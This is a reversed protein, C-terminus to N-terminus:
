KFFEHDGLNMMTNKKLIDDISQNFWTINENLYYETISDKGIRNKKIFGLITNFLVLMLLQLQVSKIEETFSDDFKTDYGIDVIGDKNSNFKILVQNKFEEVKTDKEESM